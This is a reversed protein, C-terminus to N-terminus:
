EGCYPTREDPTADPYFTVIADDRMVFVAEYGHGDDLVRHRCADTGPGLQGRALRYAKTVEHLIDSASLGLAYGNICKIGQDGDPTRFVVGETYIPPDTEVISCGGEMRGAWGNIQAQAYRGVYHFGGLTWRGDERQDPEGCFIHRFGSEHFWASVLTEMDGRLTALLSDRLSPRAELFARFGSAPVADGWDGCLRLIDRDVEGFVPMPPTPDDPGQDVSDFFPPFAPAPSSVTPEDAVLPVPGPVSGAADLAAAPTGTEANPVPAPVIAAEPAAEPAADGADVAFVELRGCERAVWREQPNAGPVRLRVWPGDPINLEFAGYVTGPRLTVDGPNTGQNFSQYAPCEARAAFTAEIAVAAAAPPAALGGAVACVGVTLAVSLARSRAPM